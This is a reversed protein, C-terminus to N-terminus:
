YQPGDYPLDALLEDVLQEVVNYIPRPLDEMSLGWDGGQLYDDLRAASDLDGDAFMMSFAEIAHYTLSGELYSQAALYVSGEFDEPYEEINQKAASIAGDRAEILTATPIEFSLNFTKM